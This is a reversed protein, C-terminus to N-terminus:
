PRAAPLGPVPLVSVTLGSAANGTHYVRQWAPFGLRYSSTSRFPRDHWSGGRVTKLGEGGSNLKFQSAPVFTLIMGTRRCISCNCSISKDVDATVEYRVTGCHCSGTHQQATM